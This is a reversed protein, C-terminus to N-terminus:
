NDMSLFFRRRHASKTTYVGQEFPIPIRQVTLFTKDLSLIDIKWLFEGMHIPLMVMYRQTNWHKPLSVYTDQTTMKCEHKRVM